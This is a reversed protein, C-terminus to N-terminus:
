RARDERLLESGDSYDRGRLSDKICRAIETDKSPKYNAAETLIIVIESQLSRNNKKARAELGNM